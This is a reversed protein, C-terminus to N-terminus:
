PVVSPLANLVEPWAALNYNAWRPDGTVQFFCFGLVDPPYTRECWALQKLVAEELSWDPWWRKFLSRQTILGDGQFPKGGRWMDLTPLVTTLDDMRDWFCETLVMRPLAIGLQKCRTELMLFRFLHYDTGVDHWIEEFTPWQDEGALPHGSALDSVHMRSNACGYPLAGTTYEHIGVVGHGAHTWESAVRLFNDWHGADIHDQNIASAVSFNGICGKLGADALQPMFGAMGDLYQKPDDNIYPENPWYHYVDPASALRQKWKGLLDPPIYNADDPWDARSIVISGPQAEAVKQARGVDNMIVYASAGGSALNLTQEESLTAANINLGLRNGM